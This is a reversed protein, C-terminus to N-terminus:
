LLSAQVPGAPPPELGLHRYALETAVRGRPTRALLGCQIMFPEHVDEVTEPEEAVSTAITDLGVPGGRFKLIMTELIRRDLPELGLGDVELMDLADRTVTLSARGQARVQAYDRVRRLLRNAIRPTGRSRRALEAAAGGEIELELIRASRRIILELEPETYFDLRYVAGFRDRMPGSLLGQRTTAGVCTFRPLQLRMPSAGAGKGAVFDFRFDELAPYLSEEVLKNLRHIEDIFFVDRDSQNLLMSALAGAHDIAPGSTTKITVELENAIINALTTKGLGPPGCLLVHEVPEGRRRAAELLIGLNERVQLQGVYDDLKRPRLTRDFQEEDTALGPDVVRDEDM